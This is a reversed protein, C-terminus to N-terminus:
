VAHVPQPLTEDLWDPLLTLHLLTHVKWQLAELSLRKEPSGARGDSEWQPCSEGGVQRMSSDLITMEGGKGGGGRRGGTKKKQNKKEEEM